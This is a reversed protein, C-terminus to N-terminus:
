SVSLFVFHPVSEVEFSDTVDEVTEADVQPALRSPVHHSPVLRSESSQAMPASFCRETTSAESVRAFIADSHARALENFLDALQGGAASAEHFSGWFFLALLKGESASQAQLEGLRANGSVEVVASAAAMGPVAAQDRTTRGADVCTRRPLAELSCVFAIAEGELRFRPAGRSSLRGM